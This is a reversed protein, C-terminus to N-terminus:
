SSHFHLPIPEPNFFFLRPLLSLSHSHYSRLNGMWCDAQGDDDHGDDHHDHDHRHQHDHHFTVVYDRFFSKKKAFIM